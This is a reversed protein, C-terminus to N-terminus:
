GFRADGDRRGVGDRCIGSPLQEAVPDLEVFVDHALAQKCGRRLDGGSGM